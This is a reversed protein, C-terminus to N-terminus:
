ATSAHAPVESALSLSPANMVKEAMAHMEGRQYKPILRALREVQARDRLITKLQDWGGEILTKDRLAGDIAFLLESLDGSNEDLRFGILKETKDDLLSKPHNHKHAWYVWCTDIQARRIAKKSQAKELTESLFSAIREKVLEVNRAKAKVSGRASGNASALHQGNPPALVATSTQL